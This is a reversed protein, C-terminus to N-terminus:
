WVSGKKKLPAACRRLAEAKRHKKREELVRETWWGKVVLDGTQGAKWVSSNDHIMSKPVWLEVADAGDFALIRCLVAKETERLAATNPFKDVTEDPM